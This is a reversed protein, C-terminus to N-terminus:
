RLGSGLLSREFKSVVGASFFGAQNGVTLAVYAGAAILTKKGAPWSGGIVKDIATLAVEQTLGARRLVEVAAELRALFDSMEPQPVSTGKRGFRPMRVQGGLRSPLVRPRRCGKAQM